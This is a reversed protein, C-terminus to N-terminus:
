GGEFRCGWILPSFSLSLGLSKSSWDKFVLNKEVRDNDALTDEGVWGGGWFFMKLCILDFIQSEEAEM